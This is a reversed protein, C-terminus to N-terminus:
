LWGSNGGGSNKKLSISTLTSSKEWEIGMVRDSLIVLIRCNIHIKDDTYKISERYIMYPKAHKKLTVCIAAYFLQSMSNQEKGSVNM